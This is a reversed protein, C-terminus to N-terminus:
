RPSSGSGGADLDVRRVKPHALLISLGNRSLVTGSLAPVFEFRVGGRYDPAELEDLVESQLRAIDGRLQERDEGASSQSAPEVLAIVVSVSGTATLTELVGPGVKALDTTRQTHCAL